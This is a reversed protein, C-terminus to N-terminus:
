ETDRFSRLKLATGALGTVLLLLTAPEPIQQLTVDNKNVELQGGPPPKTWVGAAFSINPFETTFQIVVTAGSPFGPNAWSVNIMNTAGTVTGAGVGAGGIVTTMTITANGITGGTGAFVLQLGTVTMGTNNKVTVQWTIPAAVAESASVILFFFLPIVAKLLSKM